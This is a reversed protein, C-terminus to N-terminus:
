LGDARPRKRKAETKGGAGSIGASPVSVIRLRDAFARSVFTTSCGTDLAFEYEDAHVPATPLLALIVVIGLM